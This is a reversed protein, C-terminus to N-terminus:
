RSQSPLILISANSKMEIFDAGSVHVFPVVLPKVTVLGQLASTKV